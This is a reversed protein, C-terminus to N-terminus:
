CLLYGLRAYFNWCNQVNNHLLKKKKNERKEREASLKIGNFEKFKM